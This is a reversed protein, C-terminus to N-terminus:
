SIFSYKSFSFGITLTLLPFYIKGESSRKSVASASSMVLFRSSAPILATLNFVLNSIKPILPLTFSKIIAGAKVLNKISTSLSTFIDTKLEIVLSMMTATELEFILISAGIGM